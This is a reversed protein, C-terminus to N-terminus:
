SPTMVVSDISMADHVFVTRRIVAVFHHLLPSIWSIWWYDLIGDSLREAFLILKGVPPGHRAYWISLRDVHHNRRVLNGESVLTALYMLAAEIM